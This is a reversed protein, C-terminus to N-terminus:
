ASTIFASNTNETPVTCIEREPFLFEFASIDAWKAQPNVKIFVRDKPRVRPKCFFVANRLAQSVGDNNKSARIAVARSATQDITMQM